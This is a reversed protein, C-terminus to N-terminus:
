ILRAQLLKRQRAHALWLVDGVWVLGMPLFDLAFRNVERGDAPDIQALGFRMQGAVWDFSESVPDYTMRDPFGLWLYGDHFDLGGAAVPAPLTRQVQGKHPDVALLHGQQQAVTWLLHGDWALGTLWGHNIPLDMDIDHAAPNLCRLVGENYIAQWLSHGDWTSGSLTGPCLLEDTPTLRGAETQSAELGGIDLQFIRAAGYDANWLHVGDWALGAPARGPATFERVIILTTM